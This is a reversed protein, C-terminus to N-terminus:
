QRKPEFHRHVTKRVDRTYLSKQIRAEHCMTNANPPKVAYPM